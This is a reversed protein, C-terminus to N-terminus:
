INKQCSCFTHDVYFQILEFVNYAALSTFESRQEARSHISFIFVYLCRVMDLLFVVVVNYVTLLRRFFFVRSFQLLLHFVLICASPAFNCHFLTLQYNEIRKFSINAKTSTLVLLLLLGRRFTSKGCWIGNSQRKLPDAKTKLQISFLAGFLVKERECRFAWNVHMLRHPWFWHVHTHIQIYHSYLM